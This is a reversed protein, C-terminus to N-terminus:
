AGETVDIINESVVDSDYTKVQFWNEDRVADWFEDMATEENEAEVILTAMRRIQMDQEITVEYKKM